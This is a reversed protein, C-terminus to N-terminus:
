NEPETCINRITARIGYQTLFIQCGDVVSALKKVPTMDPPNSEDGLEGLL